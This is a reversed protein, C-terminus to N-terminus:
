GKPLLDMSLNLYTEEPDQYHQPLSKHLAALQQSCVTRRAKKLSVGDIVLMRLARYYFRYEAAEEGLGPSQVASSHPFAM